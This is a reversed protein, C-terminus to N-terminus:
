FLAGVSLLLDEELERTAPLRGLRAIERAEEVAKMGRREIRLWKLRREKDEASRSVEYRASTVKRERREIEIEAFTAFHQEFFSGLHQQIGDLIPRRADIPMTGGISHSTGTRERWQGYRNFGGFFWEDGQPTAVAGDITVGDLGQVEVTLHHGEVDFPIFNTLPRASEGFWQTRYVKDVQQLSTLRAGNLWAVFRKGKMSVALADAAPTESGVVPPLQRWGQFAKRAEGEVDRNEGLLARNMEPVHPEIQRIAPELEFVNECFHLEASVDATALPDFGYWHVIPFGDEESCVTLGNALHVRPSFDHEELVATVEIGAHTLRQAVEDASLQRRFPIM